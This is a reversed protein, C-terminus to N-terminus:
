FSEQNWFFASGYVLSVLQNSFAFFFISFPLVFVLMNNFIFNILRSLEAKKDAHWLRAFLPQIILVLPAVIIMLLSAASFGSSYYAVNKAGIFLQILFLDTHSLLM